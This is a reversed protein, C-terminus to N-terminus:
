VEWDKNWWNLCQFKYTKNTLLKRSKKYDFERNHAVYIKLTRVCIDLTVFIDPLCQVVETKVKELTESEKRMFFM